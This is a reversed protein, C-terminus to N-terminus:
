CYTHQENPIPELLEQDHWPSVDNDIEKARKLNRQNEKERTKVIRDFNQMMFHKETKNVCPCYGNPTAMDLKHINYQQRLSLKAVTMPDM